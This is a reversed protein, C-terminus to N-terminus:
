FPLDSDGAGKAATRESQDAAGLMVLENVVVDCWYRKNGDADETTSYEVRGRVYLRDGTKVYQEVTDALKGFFVLRHWDTREQERVRFNTALSVKAVRTGAKTARIEPANGVHGILTIDNVSKM